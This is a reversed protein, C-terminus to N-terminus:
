TDKGREKVFVAKGLVEKEHKKCCFVSPVVKMMVPIDFEDRDNKWRILKIAHATHPDHPKTERM